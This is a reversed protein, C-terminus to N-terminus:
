RVQSYGAGCRSCKVGFGGQQAWDHDADQPGCSQRAEPPFEKATAGEFALDAAKRLGFLKYAETAQLRLRAGLEECYFCSCHAPLAEFRGLRYGESYAAGTQEEIVAQRIQRERRAGQEMGLAIGELKGREYEAELQDTWTAEGSDQGQGHEM